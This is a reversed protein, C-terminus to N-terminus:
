SKCSRGTGTGIGERVITAAGARVTIRAKATYLCATQGKQIDSWICLPSVTDRDWADFGFIRNAECIVHWGEVYSIPMGQSVRTKVHRIRLKANLSQRQESSFTM